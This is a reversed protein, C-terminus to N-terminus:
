NALFELYKELVKYGDEFEYLKVPSTNAFIYKLEKVRIKFIEDSDKISKLNRSNSWDVLKLLEDLMKKGDTAELPYFGFSKLKNYEIHTVAPEIVRYSFIKKMTVYNRSLSKQVASIRSRLFLGSLSIEDLYSCNYVKDKLAYALEFLKRLFVM